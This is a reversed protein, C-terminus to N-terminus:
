ERYHQVIQQIRRPTFLTYRVTEFLYRNKPNAHLHSQFVLRFSTPFLIYRDKRGKGQASFIQCQAFDIDTVKVHGLESVRGASFFLLKLMIEHQVHGCPQLVRFFKKLEAEPLLRPLTRDHPPKRLGLRRRAQQCVYLFATYDLREKRAIRVFQTVIASKAKAKPSVFHGRKLQQTKRGPM